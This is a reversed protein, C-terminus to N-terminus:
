MMSLARERERGFSEVDRGGATSNNSGVVQTLNLISPQRHLILLTAMMTRCLFLRSVTLEFVTSDGDFGAEATDTDDHRHFGTTNMDQFGAILLNEGCHYM